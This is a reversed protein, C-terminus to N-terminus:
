SSAESSEALGFNAVIAPNYDLRAASRREALLATVLASSRQSVLRERTADKEEAFSAEDFRKRELVEALVEEGEHTIPGAFDGVNAELVAQAVGRSQGLSGVSGNEGFEGSEQVELELEEALQEFTYDDGLRDKLEALRAKAVERQKDAAVADRVGSEVEALEPIRPEEVALLRLVAWGGPIRVPESSAGATLDFAAVTFATSRGVGPVVDERGFAETEVRSVGAETDAFSGLSSARMAQSGSRM